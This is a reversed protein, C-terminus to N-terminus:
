EANEILFYSESNLLNSFTLYDDLPYIALILLLRYGDSVTGARHWLFTDEIFTFGKPGIMNLIPKNIGIDFYNSFREMYKLQSFKKPIHTEPILQHCGNKLNTSNLYLFLKLQRRAELDRHFKSAQDYENEKIELVPRYEFTGICALKKSDSYPGLYALCLNKINLDEILNGVLEKSVFARKHHLSQSIDQYISKKFELNIKELLSEPTNELIAYGNNVLCDLVGRGQDLIVKKYKRKGEIVKLLPVVILIYLLNIHNKRFIAKLNLTSVWWKLALVQSKILSLM